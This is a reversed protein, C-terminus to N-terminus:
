IPVERVANLLQDERFCRVVLIKDLGNLRCVPSSIRGELFRLGFEELIALSPNIQLKDFVTSLGPHIINYNM